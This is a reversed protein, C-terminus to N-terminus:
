VRAGVNVNRDTMLVEFTVLLNLDLRTLDTENMICSIQENAVTM